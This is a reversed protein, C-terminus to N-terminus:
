KFNVINKKVSVAIPEGCSLLSGNNDEIFVDMSGHSISCRKCNKLMM